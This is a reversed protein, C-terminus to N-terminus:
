QINADIQAKLQIPDSLVIRINEWNLGIFPAENGLAIEAIEKRGYWNLSHVFVLSKWLQQQVDRAFNCGTNPEIKCNANQMGGLDHDLFVVEFTDPKWLKNAEDRSTAITVEFGILEKKFKKIREENDELIFVKTM